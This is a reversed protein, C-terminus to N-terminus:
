KVQDDIEADTTVLDLDKARETLLAENVLEEMLGKKLDHLRKDDRPAGADHVAQDVRADLIGQTIIRSSVRVLIRDIVESASASRAGPSALALALVFLFASKARSSPM